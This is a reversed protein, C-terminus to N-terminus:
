ASSGGIRGRDQTWRHWTVIVEAIWRNTHRQRDTLTGMYDRILHDLHDALGPAIHEHDAPSRVRNVIGELYDDYEDWCADIAGVPDWGTMLICRLEAEGSTRWWRLWPEPATELLARSAAMEDLLPRVQERSADDLRDLDM